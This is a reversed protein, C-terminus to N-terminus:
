FKEILGKVLENQEKMIEFSQELQGKLLQNEDLVGKVLVGLARNELTNQAKSKEIEKSMLLYLGRNGQLQESSKSKEIEEKGDEKKDKAPTGKELDEDDEDSDDDYNESQIKDA